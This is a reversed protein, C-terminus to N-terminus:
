IPASWMAQGYYGLLNPLPGPNLMTAQHGDPNNKAEEPPLILLKLYLFTKPSWPIGHFSRSVCNLFWLSTLSSFSTTFSLSSVPMCLMDNPTVFLHLLFAFHHLKPFKSSSMLSRQFKPYSSHRKTAITVLLLSLLRLFATFTQKIHTLFTILKSPDNQCDLSWLWLSTTLDINTQERELIQKTPM